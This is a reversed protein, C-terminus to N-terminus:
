KSGIKKCCDNVCSEKRLFNGDKDFTIKQHSKEKSLCVEYTIIGKSEVKFIKGITYGTFNKNLYSSIVPQLDKNRVETKTQASLGSALVFLIGFVIYKKV